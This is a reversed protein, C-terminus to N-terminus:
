CYGSWYSGCYADHGSDRAREAPGRSQQQRSSDRGEEQAPRQPVLELKGSDEYESVIKWIYRLSRRYGQVLLLDKDRIGMIEAAVASTGDIGPGYQQDFQLLTAIYNTVLRAFRKTDLPSVHMDTCLEQIM